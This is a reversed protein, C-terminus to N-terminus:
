CKSNDLFLYLKEGKKLPLNAPLDNCCWLAVANSLSQWVETGCFEKTPKTRL